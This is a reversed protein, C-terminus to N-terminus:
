RIYTHLDRYWSDREERDACRIYFSKQKSLLRFVLEQDYGCTPEPM